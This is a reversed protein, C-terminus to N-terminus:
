TYTEVVELRDCLAEVEETSAGLREMMMREAAFRPAAKDGPFYRRLVKEVGGSPGAANHSLEAIREYAQRYAHRVPEPTDPHSLAERLAEVEILLRLLLNVLSVQAEGQMMVKILANFMALSNDNDTPTPM